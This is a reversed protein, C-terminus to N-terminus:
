DYMVGLLGLWWNDRCTVSAPREKFERTDKKDYDSYACVICGWQDLRRALSSACFHKSELQVARFYPREIVLVANLGHAATGMVGSATYGTSEAVHRGQQGGREAKLGGGEADRM